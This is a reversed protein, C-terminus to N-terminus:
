VGRLSVKTEKRTRRGRVKEIALANVEENICDRLYSLAATIKARTNTLENEVRSLAKNFKKM